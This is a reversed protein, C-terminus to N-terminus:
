LVQEASPRNMGSHLFLTSNGFGFTGYAFCVEINLEAVLRETEWLEITQVNYLSQILQLQSLQKIALVHHEQYM